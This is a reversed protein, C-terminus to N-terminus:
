EKTPATLDHPPFYGGPPFRAASSTSRKPSPTGTPTPRRRRRSREHVGARRLPHDPDGLDGAERPGGDQVTPHPAPEDPPNQDRRLGTRNGGNSICRSWPRLRVTRSSLITTMLRITENDPRNKVMYEVVPVPVPHDDIDAPTRGAKVAAKMKAPLLGPRFSGDQYYALVPLVLSGSVRWLM